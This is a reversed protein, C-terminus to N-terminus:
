HRTRSAKLARSLNVCYTSPKANGLCFGCDGGYFEVFRGDPDDKFFKVGADKRNDERM